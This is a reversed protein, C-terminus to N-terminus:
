SGLYTNIQTKYQNLRDVNVWTTIDSPIDGAVLTDIETIAAYLSGSRLYMQLNDLFDSVEKTKGAQTIGLLVNEVAAQIIIQNGFVIADNIKATVIDQTTPNFSTSTLSNWYNTVAATDADSITDLFDIIMLDPNCRVGDYNSSLTSRFYTNIKDVKVPFDKWGFEITPNGM